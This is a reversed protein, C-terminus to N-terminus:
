RRSGGRSGGGGRRRQKGERDSHDHHDIHSVRNEERLEQRQNFPFTARLNKGERQEKTRQSLAAGLAVLLVLVTKYQIM